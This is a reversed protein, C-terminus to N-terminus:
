MHMDTRIKRVSWKIQKNKIVQALGFVLVTKFTLRTHNKYEGFKPTEAVAAV